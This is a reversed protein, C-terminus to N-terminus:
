LDFVREEEWAGKEKESEERGDRHVIAWGERHEREREGELWGERGRGRESGRAEKM